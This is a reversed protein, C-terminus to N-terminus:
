YWHNYGFTEPYSVKKKNELQKEHETAAKEDSFVTGDSCVWQRREMPFNKM